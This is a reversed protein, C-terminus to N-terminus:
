GAYIVAGKPRPPNEHEPPNNGDHLYSEKSQPANESPKADQNGIGLVGQLLSVIQSIGERSVKEEDGIAMSILSILENAPLTGEQALRRAYIQTLKETTNTM